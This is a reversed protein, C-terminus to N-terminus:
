KPASRNSGLHVMESWSDAIERMKYTSIRLIEAGKSFSIANQEIGIRVLNYLRNPLFDVDNLISDEESRKTAVYPESDIPHYYEDNGIGKTKVGLAKCSRYYSQWTKNGQGTEEVLRMLVTRYSVSFIRKVKWVAEAFHHGLADNWEDIFRERPMLFYSAFVNAEKEEFDIEEDVEERGTSHSNFHMLLHGLEHAASFIWREVSIRDWVNVAIVSAQCIEGAQICLGFWNDSASSISIVKVGQSELLGAIDHIPADIARLPVGDKSLRKRVNEALKKAAEENANKRDPDLKIALDSLGFVKEDNLRKELNSYDKARASVDLLVDRRLHGIRKKPNARFRVAEIQQVQEYLSKLKVNLVKSISLLSNLKPEKVKGRELSRYSDIPIGASKSVDDQSMQRALRLSRINEAVVKADVKSVESRSKKPM